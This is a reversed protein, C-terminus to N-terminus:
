NSLNRVLKDLVEVYDVSAGRGAGVINVLERSILGKMMGIFEEVPVRHQIDEGVNVCLIKAIDSTLSIKSFKEALINLDGSSSQGIAILDVNTFEARIQSVIQEFLDLQLGGSLAIAVPYHRNRRKLISDLVQLVRQLNEYSQFNEFFIVDVKGAMLGKIQQSYFLEADPQSLKKEIDGIRGFVFRPRNKDILSYKVAVERALKAATFNIEYALNALDYQSLYFENAKLTNTRIIDAGSKYFKEFIETILQPYTLNLIEYFGTLNKTHQMFRSGHYDYKRLNNREIYYGPAGDLILVRKHLQTLIKSM